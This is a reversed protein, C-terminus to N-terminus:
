EVYGALKYSDAWEEECDGCGVEQYVAGFDFTLDDFTVDESLCYPCINGGAEAYVEPTMQPEAM